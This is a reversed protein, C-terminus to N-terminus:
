PRARVLQAVRGDRNQHLRLSEFGRCGAQLASVRALQTLAGQDEPSRVERHNAGIGHITERRAIFMM